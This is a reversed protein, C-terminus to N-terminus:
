RRLITLGFPLICVIAGTGAVALWVARRQGRPSLTGLWPTLLLVLAVVGSAVFAGLGVVLQTILEPTTTFAAVITSVIGTLVVAVIATKRVNM